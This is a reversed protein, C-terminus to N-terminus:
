IRGWVVGLRRVMLPSGTGWFGVLAWRDSKVQDGNKVTVPSWGMPKRASGGRIGSRGRRITGDDESDSADARPPIIEVEDLQPRDKSSLNYMDWELIKMGVGGNPAQAFVKIGAIRQSGREHSIVVKGVGDHACDAVTSLFRDETALDKADMHAGAHSTFSCACKGALKGNQSVGNPVAAPKADKVDKPQASVPTADVPATTFGISAVAGESRHSFHKGLVEDFFGGDLHHHKHAHVRMAAIPEAQGKAASAELSCFAKHSIWEEDTLEDGVLQSFSLDTNRAYKAVVLIEQGSLAAMDMQMIEEELPPGVFTPLRAKLEGPLGFPPKKMEGNDDVKAIEPNTVLLKTEELIQTMGKRCEIRANNLSKPDLQIPDPVDSSKTLAKYSKPDKIMASIAKWLAKFGMYASFLDTTYLDCLSYDRVVLPKDLKANHVQFSRLSRYDMLIAQIRHSYQAVKNPFENATEVVQALDWNKNPDKVDGGGSWNVSITTESLRSTDSRAKDLNSSAGISLPPPGVALQLETATKVKRINSKNHVKISIIATFEGGEIFGSIFSDGYVDPFRHPPLDAIPNFTMATLVSNVENTVKVSVMFNMDSENITHENVFNASGGAKVTGYKISASTSINLSDMVDSVNEISRSSFTVIQNNHIGNITTPVRQVSTSHFATALQPTPAPRGPAAKTPSIPTAHDKSATTPTGNPLAHDPDPAAANVELPRIIVADDICIEQTYSNFGQGLRMANTYPVLFSM